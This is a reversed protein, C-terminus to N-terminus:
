RADVSKLVSDGCVDALARAVVRAFYKNGLKNPHLGDDSYRRSRDLWMGPPLIPSNFILGRILSDDILKLDYKASLERELGDYPDYIIGRPIEVLVVNVYANKFSEILTELNQKTESRTKKDGNYDHGGLEIVVIQPATALIEPIMKIGDDTRIGDVGFDAIPVTLLKELDQPYGFDTLSDGLCAIPRDDLIHKESPNTKHWRTIEFFLLAAVLTCVGIALDRKRSTQNENTRRRWDILALGLLVCLLVFLEVTFGPRKTVLVATIGLLWPWAPKNNAFAIVAVTMWVTAVWTLWAPFSILSGFLHLVCAICALIRKM